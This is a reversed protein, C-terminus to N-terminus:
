QFFGCSALEEHLIAERCVDFLVRANDPDAPNTARIVVEHRQNTHALEAGQQAALKFRQTFYMVGVDEDSLNPQDLRSSQAFAPFDLFQPWSDLAPGDQLKARFLDLQNMFVIFTSTGHQKMFVELVTKFREIADQLRNRSPEDPMPQDFWTLDVEFVVCTATPFLTDQELPRQGIDLMQFPTEQLALLVAGDEQPGNSSGHSVKLQNVLRSDGIGGGNGDLFLVKVDRETEDNHGRRRGARSLVTGM